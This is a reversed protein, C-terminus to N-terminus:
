RCATLSFGSRSALNCLVRVRRFRRVGAAATPTVAIPPVVHPRAAASSGAVVLSVNRGEHSKEWPTVELDGVVLAKQDVAIARREEVEAIRVPLKEVPCPAIVGLSQELLAAM